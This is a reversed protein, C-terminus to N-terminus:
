QQSASFVAGIAQELHEVASAVREARAREGQDESRWWKM